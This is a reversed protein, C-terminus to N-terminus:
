KNRLCPVVMMLEVLFYLIRNITALLVAVELGVYSSISAVLIAERVGLGAPAFPVLFGIFYALSYIGVCYLFSVPIELFPVITIWFAAGLLMWTGLLVMIARLRPRLSWGWRILRRGAPHFLIVLGIVGVASLAFWIWPTETIFSLIRGEIWPPNSAIVFALGFLLATILVWAHEAIMSDRVSAVSAGRDRLMAIRSVFQWISGPVYKALQSMNYICYCTMYSFLLGARDTALRMNEVLTLKAATIALLSALLIMWSLMSLSELIVEQRTYAYTAVFGIVLLSWGWKLVAKWQPIIM